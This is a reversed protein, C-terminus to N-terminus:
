FGRIHQGFVESARERFRAIGPAIDTVDDAGHSRSPPEVVALSPRHDDIGGGRRLLPRM